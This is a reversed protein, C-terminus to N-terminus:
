NNSTQAIPLHGIRTAVMVRCIQCCYHSKADKGFSNYQFLWDHQGGHLCPRVASALHAIEPRHVQTLQETIM